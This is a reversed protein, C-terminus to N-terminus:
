FTTKLHTQVFLFVTKKFLKYLLRLDSKVNCKGDWQQTTEQVFPDAFCPVLTKQVFWDFSSLPEEM